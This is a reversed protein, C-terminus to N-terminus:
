EVRMTKLSIYKIDKSIARIHNRLEQQNTAVAIGSQALMLNFPGDLGECFYIIPKGMEFAVGAEFLTGMDKDRTNVVIFDCLYIAHHNALFVDNQQQQGADPPCECEDKPSFYEVGYCELAHKIDFLDAQQTPNFWGSAIYCKM